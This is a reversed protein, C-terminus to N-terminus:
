RPGAARAAAAEDATRYFGRREVFSDTTDRVEEYVPWHTQLTRALADAVQAYRRVAVLVADEAALYELAWPEEVLQGHIHALTARTEDAARVIVVLPERLDAVDTMAVEAWAAVAADVSAPDRLRSVSRDLDRVVTLVAHLRRDVERQLDAVESMEARLIALEEATPADSSAPACGGAVLLLLGSAVLCRVRTV